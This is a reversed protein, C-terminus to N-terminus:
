TVEDVQGANGRVVEPLQAGDLALPQHLIVSNGVLYKAPVSSDDALVIPTRADNVELAIM